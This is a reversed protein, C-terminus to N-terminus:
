HIDRNLFKRIKQHRLMEFAATEKICSYNLLYKKVLEQLNKEINNNKKM